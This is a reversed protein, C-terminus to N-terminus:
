EELAKEAWMLCEVLKKQAELSANVPPLEDLKKMLSDASALLTEFKDLQDM